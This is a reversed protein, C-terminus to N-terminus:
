KPPVQNIAQPAASQMYARWDKLAAILYDSVKIWDIQSGFHFILLSCVTFVVPAILAALIGEVEIGPLVKVVVWFILGNTLFLLITQNTLSNPISFFLAADWVKSNIFALTAVTTFAAIPGSVKLKPILFVTVMMAITQLFWYSFNLSLLEPEKM